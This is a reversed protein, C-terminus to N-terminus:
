FGGRSQLRVIYAQRLQEQLEPTLTYQRVVEANFSAHDEDIGAHEARNLTAREVDDV